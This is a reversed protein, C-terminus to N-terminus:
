YEEQKGNLEDFLRILAANSKTRDERTQIIPRNSYAIYQNPSLVNGALLDFEILKKWNTEEDTFVEMKVRYTKKDLKFGPFAGGFEIVHNQAAKPEIVFASPPNNPDSSRAQIGPREMRWELPLISNPEDPFSLRLDQVVISKAGTAIFVFPFMLLLDTSGDAYCSFARPATTKLKGPRWNMWYFSYVTFGLAIFSIWVTSSGSTSEHEHFDSAFFHFM